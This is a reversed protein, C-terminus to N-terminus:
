EHHNRWPKRLKRDENMKTSFEVELIERPAFKKVDDLTINEIKIECTFHKALKEEITRYGINISEWKNLYMNHGIWQIQNISPIKVFLRQYTLSAYITVLIFENQDRVKKIM